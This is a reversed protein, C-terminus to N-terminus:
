GVKAYGSISNEDNANPTQPQSYKQYDRNYSIQNSEPNYMGNLKGNAVM